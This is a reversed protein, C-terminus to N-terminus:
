RSVPQPSEQELPWSKIDWVTVNDQCQGSRIIGLMLSPLSLKITQTKAVDLTMDPHASVRPTCM